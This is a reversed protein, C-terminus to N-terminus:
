TVFLLAVREHSYLVIIHWAIFTYKERVVYVPSFYIFKTPFCVFYSACSTTLLIKYAKVLVDCMDYM